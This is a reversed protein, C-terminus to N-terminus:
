LLGAGRRRLITLECQCRLAIAQARELARLPLTMRLETASEPEVGTLRIGEAACHNLFAAPLAGCLRCEASGAAGWLLEYPTKM